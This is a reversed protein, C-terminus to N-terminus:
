SGRRSVARRGHAILASVPGPMADGLRWLCLGGAGVALMVGLLGGAIPSVRSVVLTTVGAMALAVLLMLNLRSWRFGTRVRAVAYVVPLYCLNMAVVAIGGAQLGVLPLGLALVALLVSIAAIEAIMFALSAGSALLLFGLPWSAVKLVDGLVQWQLVVVAPEFTRSYLLPVIWPATGLAGLLVPAALLLAVETQENVMTNAAERDGIMATIRPYFDTGMAQLVLGIYTVSVVWSAQFYGVADAGLVRQIMIRAALQGGTVATGALTLAVGLRLMTFWQPKLEALGAAEPVTTLLRRVYFRGAITTIVIPALVFVLIGRNGGILIAAIGVAAAINVSLINLRALDGIRRYGTLLASQGQAVVSLAIGLALWGISGGIDSGGLATKTWAGSLLFAVGGATALALVAWSLARRVISVQRGDGSGNAEAIQRTGVSGLSLGAVAGFTQMLNQLLVILGVGTPGLLVAVLKTKILGALINFAAAGGVISSNRLIERHSTELEESAPATM